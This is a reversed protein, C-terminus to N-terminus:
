REETGFLPRELHQQWEQLTRLLSSERKLLLAVLYGRLKIYEECMDALVLCQLTAECAKRAYWAQLGGEEVEEIIWSAGFIAYIIALHVSEPDRLLLAHVSRYGYRWTKIRLFDELLPALEQCEGASAEGVFYRRAVDFGQTFLPVAPRMHLARGTLSLAFDYVIHHPIIQLKLVEDLREESPAERLLQIAEEVGKVVDM